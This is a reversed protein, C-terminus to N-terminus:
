IYQHVPEGKKVIFVYIWTLTLSPFFNMGPVIEEIFSVMGGIKGVNGKYLRTMLYASLPAWIFNLMPIMGLIDFFIGYRFLQKKSLNDLKNFM